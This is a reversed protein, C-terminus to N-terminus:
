SSRDGAFVPQVRITRRVGQRYQDAMALYAAELARTTRETDFLPSARGSGALHARLQALRARNGALAIAAAIYEDVTPLVLDPLGVATLLSAAVRGAFTTGLTTLVPCGAWLADSATTHANYPWTDLFLDAHRYLGLYEANPRYHAFTLREPGLGRAQAERRLNAIAPDGGARVLLWLVSGPVATLIASWADLVQPNIKFTHNFNCFVMGTDPLGLEARSPPESIPRQRDNIQYSDPLLALTEAYDAHHEDPTAVPDGILFDVLGGALTGPYGLYHVQIPAPRRALVIPSAGETHGKLDVLIDIGDQRIADAIAVPDHGRLDVFREFARRIRARMPSGDDPGTSYATIGFRARDHHEFLGAALFATAHSHFDGSLYGLKLRTASLPRQPAPAPPGALSAAWADACMRQEARTSPMALLVYPSLRPTAAAVEARYRRVLETHDHWDAARNRLYVLQSLSAGHRPDLKLVRGYADAAARLEGNRDLSDALQFQLEISTPHRALAAQLTARAKDPAGLGDELQAKLGAYPVDAPAIGAARGAADLAELMRGQPQLALALNFWAAAHRGDAAIAQRASAEADAPRGAALQMAARNAHIEPARPSWKAAEHLANIAAEPRGVAELVLALDSWAEASAPEIDLSSRIREAAARLDGAQYLVVGSYHLALAHRPDVVLIADYRALAERLMGQQHLRFASDFESADTMCWPCRPRCLRVRRELGRGLPRGALRGGPPPRKEIPPAFRRSEALGEPYLQSRSRRYIKRRRRQVEVAQTRRHGGSRFATAARAKVIVVDYVNGKEDIMVRALVSGREVGAKIAARPYVPDDGSLRVIGRRVAPKPPPPPAEVVPPPAIVHPEAPPTPTVATIVPAETLRRCRSTRRRSMPRVPPQVKPAEIIKKPPPPPPPPPLKVEEIITATIPKKIVEVAKRALGTLLAWIVLAHVLVVFTIGILHRTPDRQQRAFDM